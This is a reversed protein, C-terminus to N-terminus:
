KKTAAKWREVVENAIRGRPAVKIRHAKAWERVESRDYGEPRRRSQRTTRTSRGGRGNASQRTARARDVYPRLTRRFENANSKSLDIEYNKGDLSFKLTEAAQSGDFDDVLSIVVEEIRAM